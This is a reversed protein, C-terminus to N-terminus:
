KRLPLQTAREIWEQRAPLFSSMPCIMIHQQPTLELRRLAELYAKEMTMETLTVFGEMESMSNYVAIFFMRRNNIIEDM